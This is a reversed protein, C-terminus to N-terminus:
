KKIPLFSPSTAAVFYDANEQKLAKNEKLLRQYEDRKIEVMDHGDHTPYTRKHNVITM